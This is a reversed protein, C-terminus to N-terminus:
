KKEKENFVDNWSVFMHDYCHDCYFWHSSFGKGEKLENKDFLEQCRFCRFKEIKKKNKEMNKEVLSEM